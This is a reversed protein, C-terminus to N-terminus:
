ASSPQGKKEFGWFSSEMVGSLIRQDSDKKKHTNGKPVVKEQTLETKEAGIL